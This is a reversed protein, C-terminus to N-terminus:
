QKQTYSITTISNRFLLNRITIDREEIGFLEDLMFNISCCIGFPSYTEYLDSNERSAEGRNVSIELIIVM